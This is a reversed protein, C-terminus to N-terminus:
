TAADEVGEAVVTVGVRHGLDVLTSVIADEIGGLSMAAVFSRDIKLEDVPLTRLHALSSYGTGFDDISFRIGEDRLATMAELSREPEALLTQETLELRLLSPEAGSAELARLVEEVISPRRLDGLSLNVSVPVEHGAAAWGRAARTGQALAVRTITPLLGHNSADALFAGPALLGESPHDWRILSEAGAVAGTALDHQTQYHLVLQDQEAADSLDSILRPGSLRGPVASSVATVVLRDPHGKAASLNSEAVGLAQDALAPVHVVAGGVTATLRLSQGHIELPARIRAVLREAMGSADVVAGEGDDRGIVSTPVALGFEDAGLRGLAAPRLAEGVRAAVARLAADGGSRGVLENVERFADLDLVLM